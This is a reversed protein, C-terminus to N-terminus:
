QKVPKTLTSDRQWEIHVGSDRTYFIKYDNFNAPVEFPIQGIIYGGTELEADPYIIGSHRSNIASTVIDVKIYANPNDATSISMDWDLWNTKIVKSGNNTVKLTLVVLTNGTNPYTYDIKDDHGYDIYIFRNVTQVNYEVLLNATPIPTSTPISTYTPVPNNIPEKSGSKKISTTQDTNGVCGLSLVLIMILGIALYKEKM